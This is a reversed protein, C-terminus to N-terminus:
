MVLTYGNDVSKQVHQGTKKAVLNGLNLGMKENVSARWKLKINFISYQGDGLPRKLCRVGVQDLM